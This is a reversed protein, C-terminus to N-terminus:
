KSLFGLTAVFTTLLQGQQLTIPYHDIVGLAGYLLLIILPFKNPLLLLKKILLYLCWCLIGVGIIGLESLLLLYITHPPQLFFVYRSPIVTPLRVLFANFGVGILPYSRWMTIAARSLEDRVIISESQKFLSSFYPFAIAICTLCSITVWLLIQATKKKYRMGIITVIGIISMLWVGRSFTLMLAIGSVIM